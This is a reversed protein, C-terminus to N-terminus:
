PLRPPTFKLSARQARPLVETHESPQRSERMETALSLVHDIENLAFPKTLYTHVGAGLAQKATDPLAAGTMMVVYTSPNAAWAAAAVDFGDAGPMQLDTIVLDYSGGSLGLVHVGAAGDRVLTCPVHRALFWEGLLECIDEDDDAVLVKLESAEM